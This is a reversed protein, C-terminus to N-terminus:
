PLTAKLAKTDLDLALWLPRHTAADEPPTTAIVLEGAEAAADLTDRHAPLSFALAFECSVPSTIRVGLLFLHGDAWPLCLAETSIDGIGETAHVRALDLVEPNASAEVVATAWEKGDEDITTGVDFVPLVPPETSM